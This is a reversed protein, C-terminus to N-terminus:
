RAGPFVRASSSGTSATMRRGAKSCPMCSTKSRGASANSIPAKGAKASWSSTSSIPRSGGATRPRSASPFPTRPSSKSDAIRSCPCPRRCRCCRAWGTLIKLRLTNHADDERRYARARVGATLGLLIDLDRAGDHAAFRGQYGPSFRAAHAAALRRGESVGHEACLAKVFADDWTEIAPPSRASWRRLISHRARGRM